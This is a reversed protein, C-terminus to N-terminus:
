RAVDRRIRVADITTQGDIKTTWAAYLHDGHRALQPVNLMPVPQDGSIHVVPGRTGDAAVERLCVSATTESIKCLWSVAVGGDALLAIGARGFNEGSAIDVPEGFTQGSDSSQALRVAAQENAGTFWAVAVDPGDAAIVPGNVPCGGIVWGDDAVARSPQWTGNTQRLVHIDRVEAPTRNRYVAVPGSGAIAVDTACCDCVLGDIETNTENRFDDTYAAHRLTMGGGHAAADHGVGTMNRGDLWVLGVGGDEPYLTVFGHETPTGDDHPLVPDSWSKGADRSVSLHIDYAYGGAPQRVLWHAAWLPGDIPVVSPFDAWNVFWDHGDAVARPEGFRDEELVSFRLRHGDGLPEIWSLVLTGDGAALNPSRSGSAAAVDIPEITFGAAAAAAGCHLLPLFMLPVILRCAPATM